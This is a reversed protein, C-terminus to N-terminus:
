EEKQLAVIGTQNLLFACYHFIAEEVLATHSAYGSLAATQDLIDLTEETVRFTKPYKISKEM